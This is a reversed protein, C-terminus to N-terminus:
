AAELWELIRAIGREISSEDVAFSFRLHGVGGDRPFATGPLVVVGKEHLLRDALERESRLGKERIVESFDPFMYFAGEPRRVKVGPIGSLKEYMLDRRRRYGELISKFWGLGQRLARAAAIQAFTPPCSYMNNAVVSLRELLASNTVVYGLRWGTMGFTKSFGNVYYVCNRWESVQLTSFHSGEYVFHDYIEDSLVVIGRRCALEVIAEVDRRDITTGVPNEPYNLVIMRTRESVLKEVDEYRVKYGNGSHLRLYVPRAGVFRAVSEYLPYGPDPVIVEDGPELLSLMGMFVAAKAGVTIAVESPKVDVGQESSLLEAIAERLEPMGLSPGYGNYGEKMARYAEEIVFDPPQFDPQGIGFSIVDVGKRKLELGRALYVFAEEAGLRLVSENLKFAGAAKM